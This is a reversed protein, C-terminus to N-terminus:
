PVMSLGAERLCKSRYVRWLHYSDYCMPVTFGTHTWFDDCFWCLDVTGEPLNKKVDGYRLAVVKDVRSCTVVEGFMARRYAVSSYTELLDVQLSRSAM